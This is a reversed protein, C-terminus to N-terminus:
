DAMSRLIELSKLSGLSTLHISYYRLIKDLALKRAHRDLPLRAASEFDARAITMMATCEKGAIFDAHLPATNRFCADRMDFIAGSGWASLDPAIGAHHTLQYLFILHFAAVARSDTMAGLRDVSDFIYDSLAGDPESRRLLIDLTEAIFQASLTKTPSPQMALSGPLARLDRVTHIDRGPRIDCECAFTCLPATLARRRRAERGAGAPLSFTLRGHTRTWASLLNKSDSVKTTRLAICDLHTYM